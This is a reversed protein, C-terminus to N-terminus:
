NSNLLHTKLLRKFNDLTKADKINRPLKNWLTPSSTSFARQGYSKTSASSCALLSQSQSRLNRSPQYKHVLEQLYTPAHVHICSYTLILTKYAIRQRVPLWHLDSFISSIHDCTKSRTVLRAASNQVRQLKSIGSDPLGLLLSNCFDLRSTIFAHVLKETTSKDLLNRIQGIKHLALYSSKCINKVHIDTRLDNQFTVGLDRVRQVPEIPFSGIKIPSLTTSSRFRSTIHIVETKEENLKLKNAVSWARVDNLCHELKSITTPCDQENTIVYVQTDDAYLMRNIDHGEIIDELPSTYLTFCLPELALLPLNM